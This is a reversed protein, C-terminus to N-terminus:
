RGKTRKEVLKRLSAVEGTLRKLNDGEDWMRVESLVHTLLPAIVEAFNHLADVEQPSYKRGDERGTLMIWAINDDGIRLPVVLEVELEKLRGAEEETLHGELEEGEEPLYVARPKVELSVALGGDAPLAPKEKKGIFRMVEGEVRYLYCNVAGYLKELRTTFIQAMRDTNKFLPLERSLEKLGRKLRFKERFVSLEVFKEVARRLPPFGLAVIATVSLILIINHGWGVWEVLYLELLWEISVAVAIVPAIALGYVLGRSIVVTVDQVRRHVIAYGFSLPVLILPYIFASSYRLIHSLAYFNSLLLIINYTLLPLVGLVTGWILYRLRRRQAPNEETFHSHLFAFIACLVLITGLPYNLSHIPLLLHSLEPSQTIHAYKFTAFIIAGALCFMIVTAPLWPAKDIVRKQKPFHLSLLLIFMGFLFGAATSLPIYLRDILNLASPLRLEVPIPSLATAASICLLLFIAPIRGTTTSLYVILGSLLFITAVVTLASDQLFKLPSPPELLISFELLEGEREVTLDLTKGFLRDEWLQDAAQPEQGEVSILKDGVQLGASEANGGEEVATIFFGPSEGALYEITLGQDCKVLELVNRYVGYLPIIILVILLWRTLTKM